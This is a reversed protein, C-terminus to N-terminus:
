AGGKCSFCLRGEFSLPEGIGIIRFSSAIERIGLQLTDAASGTCFPALAGGRPILSAAPLEMGAAILDIQQSCHSDTQGCNERWLAPEDGRSSGLAM